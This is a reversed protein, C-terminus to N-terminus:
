FCEELKGMNNKRKEMGEKQMVPELILMDKDEIQNCAIIELSWGGSKERLNKTTKDNM